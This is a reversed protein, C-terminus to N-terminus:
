AGDWLEARMATRLAKGTPDRPIADRIEIRRPRKYGALHEVCAAEVAAVVAEHDYGPAVSIFAVPQEGREPDPGGAVVADDIGDVEFIVAEIEAPYVNVGASVILEASRGSLFLYGDEDVYGIDGVTFAGDPRFAADTKDDANIYRFAARGEPRMFYVTGPQNPGLIEGDDGVILVKQSGMPRGVTGPRELWEQSSCLAMGGETFGYYEVFVPGWWDIMHQKLEISCAEGGHLICVFGSPDLQSRRQEPLALLQRFMTPVMISATVGDNLLDVAADANWRTMIRMPAGAALAGLGFALPAGHFLQSVMLHVGDRPLGLARSGLGSNTWWQEFATTADAERRVGKPRGTTGSTYPIRYGCRGPPLPTAAQAAVWGAFDDDLDIVALGADAGARRGTDVDTVVVRSGADDLVYGIESATWNTKVPTMTLGTRLAALMCVVFEVRNTAVLAMHDGPELGLAEFGNGIRHTLEDLEAWSLRRHDDALALDDPRRGALEGLTSPLDTM